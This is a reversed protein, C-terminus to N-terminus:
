SAQAASPRHSFLPCSRISHSDPILPFDFPLIAIIARYKNITKLDTENLILSEVKIEKLNVKREEEVKM